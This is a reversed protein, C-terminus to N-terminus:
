FCGLIIPSCGPSWLWWSKEFFKAICMPPTSRHLRSAYQSVIPPTSIYKESPRPHRSSPHRPSGSTKGSMEQVAIKALFHLFLRCSGSSGSKAQFDWVDKKWVDMVVRIEREQSTLPVSLVAICIPPTNCYMNSTYRWVKNLLLPPQPKQLGYRAFPRPPNPDCVAVSRRQHGGRAGSFCSRPYQSLMECFALGALM